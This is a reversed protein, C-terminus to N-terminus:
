YAFRGQAPRKAPRRAYGSAWPRETAVRTHEGHYHSELCTFCYETPETADTTTADTHNM